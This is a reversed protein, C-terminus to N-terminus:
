VLREFYCRDANCYKVLVDCLNDDTNAVCLDCIYSEEGKNNMEKRSLKVLKYKNGNYEATITVKSM